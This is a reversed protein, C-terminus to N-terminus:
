LPKFAKMEVSILKLNRATQHWVHADPHLVYLQKWPMDALPYRDELHIVVAKYWCFYVKSLSYSVISKRWLSYLSSSIIKTFYVSHQHFIVFYDELTGTGHLCCPATCGFAALFGNVTYFVFFRLEQQWHIHYLMKGLRMLKFPCIQFKIVMKQLCTYSESRKTAFRWYLNTWVREAVCRGGKLVLM